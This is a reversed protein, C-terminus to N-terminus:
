RQVGLYVIFLMMGLSGYLFAGLVWFLHRFKERPLRSFRHPAHIGLAVLCLLFLHIRAVGQFFPVGGLAPFLLGGFGLPLLLGSVGGLGIFSRRYFWKKGKKHDGPIFLFLTSEKEGIVGIFFFLLTIFALIGSLLVGWPSSLPNSGEGGGSTSLFTQLFFGLLLFFSLDISDPSAPGAPDRSFSFSSHRLIELSLFGFLFLASSAVPDNGSLSLLFSFLAMLLFLFLLPKLNFVKEDKRDEEESWALLYALVAGGMWPVGIRKVIEFLSGEQFVWFIVVPFILFFFRFLGQSIWSKQTGRRRRREELILWLFLFSLWSFVFFLGGEEEQSLLLRLGWPLSLSFTLFDSNSAGLPLSLSFFFCATATGFSFLALTLLYPVEAQSLPFLSFTAVWLALGLAILAEKERPFSFHLFLNSAFLAGFFGPLFGLLFPTLSFGKLRLWYSLIGSFFVAFLISVRATTRFSPHPTLAKKLSSFFSSPSLALYIAIGGLLFFWLFLYNM